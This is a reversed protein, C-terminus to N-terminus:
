PPFAKYPHSLPLVSEMGLGHAMYGIIRQKDAFPLVSNVVIWEAGLGIMAWNGRNDSGVCDIAGSTIPVNAFHTIVPSDLGIASWYGGRTKPSVASEGGNVFLEVVSRQNISAVRVTETNATNEGIPIMTTYNTAAGWEQFTNRVSSHNVAAFLDYDGDSLPTIQIGSPGNLTFALAARGNFADVQWAPPGGIMSISDRGSSSKDRISVVNAGDLTITSEDRPQFWLETNISAPTWPGGGPTAYQIATAFKHRM